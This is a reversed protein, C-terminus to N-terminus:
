FEDCMIRSAAVLLLAGVTSVIISGVVHYAHLGLAGFIMGGRAVARKTGSNHSM